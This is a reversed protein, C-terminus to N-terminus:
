KHKQLAIGDKLYKVHFLIISINQSIWKFKSMEDTSRTTFITGKLIGSCTIESPFFTDKLSVQTNMLFNIPLDPGSNESQLSLSFSTRCNMVRIPRELGKLEPVPNFIGQLSASRDLMQKPTDMLSTVLRRAEIIATKDTFESNDIVKQALRMRLLHAKAFYLLNAHVLCQLSSLANKALHLCADFCNYSKIRLGLNHLAKDQASRPMDSELESFLSLSPVTCRSIRNKVSKLQSRRVNVRGAKDISAEAGLAEVIQVLEQLDETFPGGQQQNRMKSNHLWNNFITKGIARNLVSYFSNPSGLLQGM